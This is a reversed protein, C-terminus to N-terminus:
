KAPAIKIRNKGKVLPIQKLTLLDLEDATAEGKALEKNEKVDTVTYAFKAGKPTKFQQLRRPTLDVKCEDKPASPMLVATLEWADPKDVLDATEWWLHANFAGVPKGDFPCISYEGKRRKGAKIEEDQAAKEADMEEKTRPKCQGIDDDLTCHTFAPLSLNTRVDLETFQSLPGTLHGGMGWNFVHPRRTEQLARAFKYAQPWGIGGDNKGNSAIVLGTEAKPNNRLYWEDSFYDWPSTKGDPMTIAANRPGYSGQYSGAFQPSEAPIHVGVMGQGLAIRDPFRIPYMPAGAGGMSMGTVFTKTLDLKPWYARIAEPAEAHQKAAWDLFSFLRTMTFPHVFGDGFTKCTGNAEHYGTWWDYPIQNSALLVAGRHANYWWYYGGNLNAGWCHLHLAPQAPDARFALRGLEKTPM